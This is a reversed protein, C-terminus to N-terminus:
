DENDSKLGYRYMKNKATQIDWFVFKGKYVSSAVCYDNIRMSRHISSIYSLLEEIKELPLPKYNPQFINDSVTYGMETLKQIRRKKSAQYGAKSQFAIKIFKWWENYAGMQIPLNTIIIQQPSIRGRTLDSADFGKGVIEITCQDSVFHLNIGYENELRNIPETIWLVTDATQIEALAEPVLKYQNGTQVPRHNPTIYQYRVMIEDTGFYDALRDVLDENITEQPMVVASKYVPCGMKSLMMNTYIKEWSWDVADAQEPLFLM